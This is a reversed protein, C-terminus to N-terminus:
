DGGNIVRDGEDVKGGGGEEGIVVDSLMVGNCSGDIIDRDIYIINVNRRDDTKGGIECWAKVKKKFETIVFDDNSVEVGM